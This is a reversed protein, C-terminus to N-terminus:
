QQAREISGKLNIYEGRTDEGQCCIYRTDETLAHINNLKDVVKKINMQM